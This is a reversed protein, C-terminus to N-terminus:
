TDNETRSKTLKNRTSVPFNNSLRSSFGVFKKLKSSSVLPCLSQVFKWVNKNNLIVRIGAGRPGRSIGFYLFIGLKGGIWGHLKCSSKNLLIICHRIQLPRRRSGETHPKFWYREFRCMNEANFITTVDKAFTANVIVESFWDFTWTILKRQVRLSQKNTGGFVRVNIHEAHSM